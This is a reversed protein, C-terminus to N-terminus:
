QKSCTEGNSPLDQRIKGSFYTVAHGGIWVREEDPGSEKNPRHLSLELWGGRSSAQFAILESKALRDGWFPGLSCHASGTVDDEFLEAQPTFFRSIFHPSRKQHDRFALGQGDSTVIVGGTGLDIKRMLAPDPRMSFVQEPSEFLCLLDRARWVEIPEAGLARVAQRIVPDDRWIPVPSPSRDPFDLIYRGGSSRVMLPGSQSMLTVQDALIVGGEALWEVAQPETLLVHAAALTAHGCLDMELEPTFWRLQLTGNQLSVFATEALHHEQAMALLQADAPWRPLLCVGAANGQFAQTAFADVHFYPLKM